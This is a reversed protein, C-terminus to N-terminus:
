LPGMKIEVWMLIAIRRPVSWIWIESVTTAAFINLISLIDNNGAVDNRDDHCRPM